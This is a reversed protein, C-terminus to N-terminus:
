SMQMCPYINEKALMYVVIDQSLPYVYVDANSM